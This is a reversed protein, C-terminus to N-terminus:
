HRSAEWEDVPEEADIPLEEKEEDWAFRDLGWADPEVQWLEDSASMPCVYRAYGSHSGDTAAM